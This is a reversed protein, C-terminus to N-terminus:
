KNVEFIIPLAYFVGVDKGKHKGPVFKPLLKLVRKAENELEPTKAGTQISVVQGNANIKFQATIKYRGQALNFGKYDFNDAVHKSIFEQTCIKKDIENDCTNPYPHEDVVSFPLTVDITTYSSVESITEKPYMDPHNIKLWELFKEYQEKSIKTQGEIPFEDLAEKDEYSLEEEIIIIEEEQPETVCSTYILSSLAIPIILIYNFIKTKQSLPKHIMKIRNKLHSHNFFSNAFSLEKTNFTQNLLLETYNEKHSACSQDAIFEHILKLEKQLLYVMPHFWLIIKLLVYFRLDLYHKQIVHVSEHKFIIEFDKNELDSNMYIHGDVSFANELRPIQYVPINNIFKLTSAKRIVSIKLRQLIFCTLSVLAGAVYIILWWNLDIKNNVEEALTLSNTDMLPDYYVPQNVLDKVATTDPLIDIGFDIHIFPLAISLVPVLLLWIRNWQFFTQKRLWIRYSGYLLLALVTSHILYQIM